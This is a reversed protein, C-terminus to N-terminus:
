KKANRAREIFTKIKGVDEVGGSEIGSAVDVGFPKVQRIVDEVNEPTLGGAAFIKHTKAIIALKRLSLMKGQSQKKRDLLYYEAKINNMNKLLGTVDFDAELQYAKIVPKMLEEIYEPGEEGHLQIYDLDLLNAIRNVEAAPQNQFVGVLKAQGKIEAIIQKAFEPSIKRKSRSVFNFGLFGAGNYVATKASVTSRIGCIKVLM